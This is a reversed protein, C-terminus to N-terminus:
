HEDQKDEQIVIMLRNMSQWQGDIELDYHIVVSVPNDGTWPSIELVKATVEIQMRGFATTYQGYTKRQLYFDLKQEIEGSRLLVVHDPYIKLTTITGQMGSSQNEEYIVYHVGNKEYCRGLAQLKIQHEEGNIDCQTGTVTVLVQKM